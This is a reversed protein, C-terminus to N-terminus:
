SKKLPLSNEWLVRKLYEGTYSSQNEAVEEPTGKAILYGGEEGGEPGLDIVCDANKIVELNHEVLVVTNGQDVLKHLAKILNDVDMYHLGVTPEDLMFLSTPGNRRQLESSLKVRQAEGGSLTTAPQGLKIYGLGIEKLFSFGRKILPSFSFLELAEDVTLGLIDAISYGKYTVELTESNYRRSHCVECPIHVDPLFHMEVKIYGEGHCAECRGGKVNFSFRGPRYGRARATPLESFFKRIYDFVGIYTIPNSRPTRGIPSQDVLLVRELEGSVTIETFGDPRTRGRGMRYLLGKYLVEYLFTSKGSGSVGTIVTFMGLPIKLSLDKLNHKRAGKIQIFGRSESRRVPIGIQLEDRLYRATLSSPHILFDNLPGQFIVEGGKAGALPGLDIAYDASRITDEDHEVVLITNGLDRLRFLTNLLRHHDRPHLGISPEDLIYTIGVLSAGVQTALRLRQAEGGSLSGSLRNLTLYSLGVDLLFKLRSKLEKIVQRAIIEERSSLQLNSIYKAADIISMDTIETINKGGVLISLAEKKLRKGGCSRCPTEVMYKSIEDRIYDSSTERYRRFLLPITGEFSTRYFREACKEDHYFVEIKENGTGYLLADILEKPYSSIPKEPNYGFHKVVSELLSMYYNGSSLPEIGGESISLRMDPIILEPSIEQKYGLGMCDQCAGYPSNFSFLRPSIEKFKFGCLPCSFKESLLLPEGEDSEVLVLGEGLKLTTELSDSLRSIDDERIILRDVMVELQHQKYRDLSPTDEELNVLEGNVRVRTLGQRLLSEFLKKYEGKRGKVVPAYLYVRKDIFKLKIESIMEDLSQRKIPTGDEPCYPIGIAAFLLRLYDYIETMTGVTSRPSRSASRQDIAITPSLGEIYDVDPKDMLGLFQRAYASLSEVYRRQGEAHITDFALTSKGSGSVGTIVTMKNRPIEVRINKLNHVRAGEVIIKDLPM